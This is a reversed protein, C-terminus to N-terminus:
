PSPQTVAVATQASPASENGSRDVATVTYWYKQGTKVSTDRYAPTLLVESVLLQGRTGEQESRYVRYGALDTEVNISWSLDVVSEAATAGPLVAAVIGQPAAPPFTDRPTLVALASNGSELANGDVVIVSRVLYAYTKGYDFGVDQYGPLTTTAIQILPAKWVGQRVDKKAADASALDLEGRYIHYEQVANIPEGAATREPASWKLQIANETLETELSAIPAPIPYLKLSADGSNASVKKASIYSRVEYVVLEGPHARIEEPSIPDLFEVKGKQVYGNVLSGPVTDVVRFSKADPTGDPKLTGRLIELAPVEKLKDGLTTKGPMTFSLLVADGAQRATLDTVAMPIPPSPPLPEGPAGCGSAFLSCWFLFLSIAFSSLPWRPTNPKAGKGTAM